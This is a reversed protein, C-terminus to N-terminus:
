KTVKVAGTGFDVTSDSDGAKLGSKTAITTLDDAIYDGPQLTTNDYVVTITKNDTSVGVSAIGTKTINGNEFTFYSDFNNQVTALNNESGVTLSTKMATSIASDLTIVFRDGLLGAAGAEVHKVSKIAPAKAEGTQFNITTDKGMATNSFTYESIRLQYETNAKLPITPTVTVLGTAEDYSVSADVKDGAAKTADVIEIKGATLATDKDQVDKNFSGEIVTKTKDADAVKFTFATKVGVNMQGNYVNFDSVSAKKNESATKFSLVMNKSDDDQSNGLVDKLGNAKVYYNTGTALDEAPNISVWAVNKNADTFAYTVEAAVESNDAAKYLKISNKITDEDFKATNSKIQILIPEDKEVGTAYQTLVGTFNGASSTAKLRVVTSTGATVAGALGKSITITDGDGDVGTVLVDQTTGDAMTIRVMDGASFKNADTIDFSTSGTTAPDGAKITTSAATAGDDVAFATQKTLNYVKAGSKVQSTTVDNLTIEDGGGANTSSLVKTFQYGGDALEVAVIDNAAFATAYGNTSLALTSIGSRVATKVTNYFDPTLSPTQIGTVEGTTFEVSYQTTMANATEALDKIVDRTNLSPIVTLRYKRDATFNAADLSIAGKNSVENNVIRNTGTSLAQRTWTGNNDYELVVNGNNAGATATNFTTGANQIQETFQIIVAKDADINHAGTKFETVDSGFVKDANAKDANKITGVAFVEPGTVDKVETTLSVIYNAELGNSVVDGTGNTLDTIYARGDDNKGAIVLQYTMAKEIPTFKVTLTKKDESRVVSDIKIDDNPATVDEGAKVISILNNAALADTSSSAAVKIISDAVNNATSNEGIEESFTIKLTHQENVTLNTTDGTVSVVSPATLDYSKVYYNAEPLEKGLTNKISADVSTTIKIKANETLDETPVIKVQKLTADYTFTFPVNKNNTVDTLAFADATVTADDTVNTLNFVLGFGAQPTNLRPLNIAELKGNVPLAANESTTKINSGALTQGISIDPAVSGVVIPYSIKTLKGGNALRVGNIQISYKKKLKLNDLLQIKLTKNATPTYTYSTTGIQTGIQTGSTDVTTKINVTTGDTENKLVVSESTISSPDIAANLKVYLEDNKNYASASATTNELDENVSVKFAKNTVPTTGNAGFKDCAYVDSDLVAEDSTTFSYETKDLKTGIESGIADSFSLVYETNAELSAPTITAETKAKNLSIEAVGIPVNGNKKIITITNVNLSTAKMVTSFKVTFSSNSPLKETIEKKEGYVNTNNAVISTIEAKEELELTIDASVDGNVTIEKTAKKYGDKTVVVVYTGNALKPTSYNTVTTNTTSAVVSTGSLIQISAGTVNTTVTITGGTVVEPAKTPAETPVETAEPTNTASGTAVPTATASGTATAVPTATVDPTNTASGSATATATAEPTNTAAGTTVSPTNSTGPTATAPTTAAKVTVTVTAKKGTAKSTATITTKGAKKATAKVSAASKAIKASKKALTVNKNSAKFTLTDGNGSKTTFKLTAAKGKTLTLKTKAAKVTTAGVKVTYSKKGIKFTAKGAKLGKITFKKGKKTVKVIKKEAKSLGTVKNTASASVTISKKIGVVKATAADATIPGSTVVVSNTLIKRTGKFLHDHRRM